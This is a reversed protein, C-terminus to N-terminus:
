IPKNTPYIPKVQPLNPHQTPGKLRELEEKCGGEREPRHGFMVLVNNVLAKLRLNIM